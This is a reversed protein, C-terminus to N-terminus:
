EEILSIQKKLEKHFRIATSKDLNIKMEYDSYDILSIKITESTMCHVQLKVNETSSQETGRFTIDINAM